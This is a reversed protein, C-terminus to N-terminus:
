EGFFKKIYTVANEESKYEDIIKKIKFANKKFSSNNLIKEIALFLNEKNIEREQLKVGVGLEVLRSINWEQEFHSPIGILPVGKSLAQYATGSGGHFIVLSAIEMVKEGPLYNEIFINSAKKIENKDIIEGTSIIINYPLDNMLEIIKKFLSADGSSGMTLYIIKKNRDIEDWWSPLSLDEKWFIPGIYYFNDSIYSLPAIEPIDCLLTLDGEWLEEIREMRKLKHKRLFYNYPRLCVDSYFKTLFPLFFLIIKETRDRSFFKNLSRYFLHTEPLIRKISSYSTWSASAISILPIKAIKSSVKCSFRSDTIIVDPKVKEYLQLEVKLFDSLSKVSHFYLTTERICAMIYEPNFDFINYTEYKGELLGIYKKPGAFVVNFGCKQLEKGINLCRTFHALFGGLPM